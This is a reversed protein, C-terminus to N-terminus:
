TNSTTTTSASLGGVVGESLRAKQSAAGEHAANDAQATRPQKGEREALKEKSAGSISEQGGGAITDGERLQGGRGEVTNHKRAFENEKIHYSHNKISFFIILQM